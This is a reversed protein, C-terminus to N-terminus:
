SDNLKKKRFNLVVLSFLGFLTLTFELGPLTNSPASGIYLIGEMGGERHGPVSCYYEFQTTINPTKINFFSKGPTEHIEEGHLLGLLNDNIHEDTEDDSHDDDTEDDGHDDKAEYPVQYTDTTNALYMHVFGIGNEGDVADIIFDHPIDVENIFNIRVCSNLPVVLETTNYSTIGIASISIVEIVEEDQCHHVILEDHGHEDEGNSTVLIPASIVGFLLIMMCIISKRTKMNMRRLLNLSNDSWKNFFTYNKFYLFM